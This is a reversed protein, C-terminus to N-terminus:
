AWSDFATAVPINAEKIWAVLSLVHPFKGLLTQRIDLGEADRGEANPLAALLTPLDDRKVTYITAVDNGFHSHADEGFDYFEIELDGSATFTLFGATSPLGGVMRVAEMSGADAAPAAGTQQVSMIVELELCLMM